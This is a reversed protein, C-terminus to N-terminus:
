PKRLFFKTINTILQLTSNAAFKTTSALYQELVLLGGLVIVIWEITAESIKLLEFIAALPGSPGPDVPVTDQALAAAACVCLLLLVMVMAHLVKQVRTLVNLM